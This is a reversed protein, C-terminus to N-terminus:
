ISLHISRHRLGAQDAIESMPITALFNAVLAQAREWISIQTCVSPYLCYNEGKELCQMLVLPGEMSEYVEKISIDKALKALRFGGKAGPQSHVLGHDVLDKMIKSLYHLPIDQMKEIEARSVIRGSPQAALYALARVAYDVRRGVHMLSSRENAKKVKKM